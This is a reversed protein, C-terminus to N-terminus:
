NLGNEDRLEYDFDISLLQEQREHKIFVFGRAKMKDIYDLLQWFEHKSLTGSLKIKMQEIKITEM